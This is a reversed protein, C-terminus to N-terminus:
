NSSEAGAVSATSPEIQLGRTAIKEGGGGEWVAVNRIRLRGSRVGAARIRRPWGFCFGGRGAGGGVLDCGGGGDRGDGATEKWAAQATRKGGERGEKWGIKWRTGPPRTHSTRTEAGSRKDTGLRRGRWTWLAAPACGAWCCCCCSSSPRLSRSRSAPPKGLRRQLSGPSSAAGPSPRRRRLGTLRDRLPYDLSAPSSSQLRPKAGSGNAKDVPEQKNCRAARGAFGSSSGSGGGGRLLPPHRLSAAPAPSAARREGPRSPACPGGSAAAAGQSSGPGARAAPRVWRGPAM